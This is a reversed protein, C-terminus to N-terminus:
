SGTVVRGALEQFAVLQSHEWKAIAMFLSLSGKEPVARSLRIQIGRCGGISFAGDWRIRQIHATFVQLYTKYSYLTM